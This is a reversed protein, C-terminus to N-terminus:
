ATTQAGQRGLCGYKVARTKEQFITNNKIPSKDNTEFRLFENQFKKSLDAELLQRTFAGRDHFFIPHEGDRGCKLDEEADYKTKAKIFANSVSLGFTSQVEQTFATNFERRASKSLM